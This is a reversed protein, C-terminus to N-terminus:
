GLDEDRDGLLGEVDQRGDLVRVVRIPDTDARYVILYTHVSWFRLPRPTLDERSHGMDPMVTLRRIATLIQKRVKEARHQGAELALYRVIQLLDQKALPHFSARQM